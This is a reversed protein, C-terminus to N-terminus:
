AIFKKVSGRITVCVASMTADTCDTRREVREAARAGQPPCRVRENEVVEKGGRGMSAAHMAQSKM